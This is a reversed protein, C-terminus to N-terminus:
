NKPLSETLIVKIKQYTNKVDPHLIQLYCNEKIKWTSLIPQENKYNCKRTSFIMSGVARNGNDNITKSARNIEDICSSYLPEGFEKNFYEMYNLNQAIKYINFHVDTIKNRSDTKTFFHNYTENLFM